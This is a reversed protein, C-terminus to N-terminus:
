IDIKKQDLEAATLWEWCHHRLRKSRRNATVSQSEGQHFHSCFLIATTTIGVVASLIWLVPSIAAGMSEAGRQPYSDMFQAACGCLETGVPGLSIDWLRILDNSRVATAENGLCADMRSGDIGYISRDNM